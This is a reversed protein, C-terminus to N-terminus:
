NRRKRAFRFMPKGSVTSSPTTAMVNIHKLVCNSVFTIEDSATTDKRINTVIDNVVNFLPKFGGLNVYVQKLVRHRRVWLAEYRPVQHAGGMGVTKTPSLVYVLQLNKPAHEHVPVEQTHPVTFHRYQHVHPNYDTLPM